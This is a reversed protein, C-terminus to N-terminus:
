DPPSESATATSSEGQGSESLQGGSETGNMAQNSGDGGDQSSGGRMRSSPSNSNARRSYGVETTPNSDSADADAAAGAANTPPSPSMPLRDETMDLLNMQDMSSFRRSAATERDAKFNKYLPRRSKKYQGRSDM